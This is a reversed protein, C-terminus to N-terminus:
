SYYEGLVIEPCLILPYGIDIYALHNFIKELVHLIICAIYPLCFELITEM